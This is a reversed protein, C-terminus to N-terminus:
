NSLTSGLFNFNDDVNALLTDYRGQIVVVNKPSHMKHVDSTYRKQNQRLLFKIENSTGFKIDDWKEKAPTFYEVRHNMAVPTEYKGDFFVSAQQADSANLEPYVWVPFNKGFSNLSSLGNNQLEVISASITSFKGDYYSIAVPREIFMLHAGFVLAGIQLIAVLGLDLTRKRVSKTDRVLYATLLPGLVLEIIFIVKLGQIGGDAWFLPGPYWILKVISALILCALSAILFSVLASKAKLKISFVMSCDMRLLFDM